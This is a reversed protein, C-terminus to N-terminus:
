PCVPVFDITQEIWAKWEEPSIPRTLKDCLSAPWAAPGPWTRVTGDNLGAVILRGDRSFAASTAFLTVAATPKGNRLPQAIKLQQGFPLRTNADWLRVMGDEAASVIYRGDTSFGVSTVDRQHGRMVDGIQTGAVADWERLRDDGRAGSVIRGGDDSFAIKSSKRLDPNPDVDVLPAEDSLRTGDATKWVLLAGNGDLAALKQGDSSLTMTSITDPDVAIRIDTPTGTALDWLRIADDGRALSAIQNGGVALATIDAQAVDLQRRLPQRTKASWSQVPGQTTAVALTVGDSGFATPASNAGDLDVSPGVPNGTEDWVQVTDDATVTAVQGDPFALGVVREGDARTPPLLLPSDWIRMTRDDGVTVVDNGLFAVGKVDDHNGMLPVGTVNDTSINWVWAADDSGGTVLRDGTENFAVTWVRDHHPIAVRSANATNWLWVDDSAGAAAIRDGRPSFALHWVPEGDARMPGGIPLKDHLNWRQITGDQTGTAITDGNIAVTQLAGHGDVRLDPGLQLPVALADWARVTGDTSGAVVYRGDSSVALSRIPMGGPSIDFDTSQATGPTWFRVAGKNGGTVIQQGTFVVSWVYQLDADITDGQQLGTTPDWLRVKGNLDGTAIRSGDHNVALDTLGTNTQIIRRVNRQDVVTDFMLTQDADSSVHPAALIRQLAPFDGDPLAGALMAKAETLLRQATAVHFQTDAKARLDDALTKSERADRYYHVAVVAVLVAVIAVAIAAMSVRKLLTQREQEKHLRENELRRCARLYDHSSSLWSRFYRKRDALKEAEVLRAGHLALDNDERGREHWAQATFHVREALKLDQSEVRLWEALEQWQELLRELAVEICVEGGRPKRVLLRNEVFTGILAHSETPLDKLRAIRRGPKGNELNISALAPVFADHLIELNATRQEPDAGLIEDVVTQVIRKLGGMQEYEALTLHGDDGYSRYLKELTLALLPLAEAKDADQLLAEILEEDIELRRGGNSVFEAPGTIVERFQGSPMQTLDPFLAGTVGTLQPADQLPAYGDSRITAVLLMNPTEGDQRELLKAVATLFAAAETRSTTTFLEEAQDLPLILTPPALKPDPDLLASRATLRAEELWARLQEVDGARCAEIIAGLGPGDLRLSTRLNDIAVALGRDGTLVAREPRVVDLPLYARDDRLLRPLLGARLFASKGAGSPALIVLMSEAAGPERMAGLVELGRAIQADRGFFVAADHRDLTAWGRYPLRGPETPPPWPFYEAVGIGLARLGNLLAALGKKALAVMEGSELRVVETDDAKLGDVFLDRYQWEATKAGATSELRAVVIKKELFEAFRYEAICQGSEEWDASALCIVAECRNSALRLADKWEQGPLIDDLDLFIEKSLSPEQEILWKKVARTQLNNCSSHSIFVRM